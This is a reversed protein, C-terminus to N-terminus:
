LLPSLVHVDSAQENLLSHLTTFKRHNVSGRGLHDCVVKALRKDAKGEFGHELMHKTDSTRVM